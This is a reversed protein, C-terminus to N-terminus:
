GDYVENDIAVFANPGVWAQAFTGAAPLATNVNFVINGHTETFNNLVIGGWNCATYETTGDVTFKISAFSSVGVCGNNDIRSRMPIPYQIFTRFGVNPICTAMGLLNSYTAQYRRYYRQCLALEINYPRYEFPTAISGKELQIGAIQMYNNLVNFVPSCNSSVYPYNTNAFYSNRPALPNATDEFTGIHLELGRRVVSTQTWSNGSVAPPPITLQIKQWNPSTVLFDGYYGGSTASWSRLTYSIISNNSANTRFWFSLTASNTANSLTGWQLDEIFSGEVYQFFRYKQLTQNQLSTFKVSKKIGESIFPQDSTTLDVLSVNLGTPNNLAQYYINWKDYPILGGGSSINTSSATARQNVIFHGNVLKNRYMSMNNASLATCTVNTASINSSFVTPMVVYNSGNSQTIATSGGGGGSSFVVGNQMLNGTFNIDGAVDLTYGPSSKSVGINSGSVALYANGGANSLTINSAVITGTVTANSGFVSSAYLSSTTTTGVVNMNSFSANSGFVGSAYMNSQVYESSYIYVNSQFYNLNNVRLIGNVTVDNNFTSQATVTVSGNQATLMSGISANSSIINSSVVTGTAATAFYANSATVSTYVPDMSMAIANGSKLISGTMNIDGKIDLSYSPNSTGLGIKGDSTLYVGPMNNASVSLAAGTTQIRVINSEPKMTVVGGANSITFQKSTTLAVSDLTVASNDGQVTGMHITQRRDSTYFLLDNSQTNRFTAGPTSEITM